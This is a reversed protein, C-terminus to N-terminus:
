RIREEVKGTKLYRYFLGATEVVKTSSAPVAEPSANSAGHYKVALDLSDYRLDGDETTGRNSM